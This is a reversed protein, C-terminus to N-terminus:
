QLSSLSHGAHLSFNLESWPLTQISNIVVFVLLRQFIFRITLATGYNHSSVTEYNRYQM